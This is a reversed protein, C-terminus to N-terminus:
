LCSCLWCPPRKAPILAAGECDARPAKGWWWGSAPLGQGPFGGGRAWFVQGAYSEVGRGLRGKQDPAQPSRADGGSGRGQLCGPSSLLASHSLRRPRM